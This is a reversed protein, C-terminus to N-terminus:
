TVAQAYCSKNKNWQAYLNKLVDCASKSTTCSQIHPVIHCKISLTILAHAEADKGDWKLQAYTPQQPISNSTNNVESTGSSSPSNPSSCSTPREDSKIVIDWLQKAVLVYSMWNTGIMLCALFILKSLM